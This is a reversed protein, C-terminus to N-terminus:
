YSEYSDYDYGFVPEVPSEAAKPVTSFSTPVTDVVIECGDVISSCPKDTVEADVIPEVEYVIGCPKDTAEADVVDTACAVVDVADTATQNFSDFDTSNLMTAVFPADNSTFAQLVIDAVSQM